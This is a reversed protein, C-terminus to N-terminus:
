GRIQISDLYPAVTNDSADIGGESSAIVVFIQNAAMTVRLVSNRKASSLLIQRGNHGGVSVTTRGTERGMQGASVMQTCVEDLVNDPPPGPPFAKRPTITMVQYVTGRNEAQWLALTGDAQLIAPPVAFSQLPVPVNITLAGNSTSFTTWGAPLTPTQPTPNAQNARSPQPTFPANTSIDVVEANKKKMEWYLYLGGAAVGVGLLGGVILVIPHNLFGRSAAKKKGKKRPRDDEEDDEDRPRRRPHPEEDADEDEVVVPKPKRVAAPRPKDEVVEFDPEAEPLIMLSQCKPCKVRKGAASDPATVRAQCDPCAVVIPM